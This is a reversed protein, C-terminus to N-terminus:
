KSTKDERMRQLLLSEGDSQSTCHFISQIRCDAVVPEATPSLLELAGGLALSVGFFCMM